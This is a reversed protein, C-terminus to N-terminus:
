GSAVGARIVLQVDIETRGRTDGDIVMPLSPLWFGEGPRLSVKVLPYDIHRALFSRVRETFPIKADAPIPDAALHAHGLNLFILASEEDSLNIGVVVGPQEATLGGLNPRTSALGPAQIVVEVACAPPLPLQKFQLYEIVAGAYKQFAVRRADADEDAELSWWEGHLRDPINFLALADAPDGAPATLLQLEEPTPPRWDDRALIRGANDLVGGNLRLRDLWPRGSHFRPANIVRIGPKLPAM